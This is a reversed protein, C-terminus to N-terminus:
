KKEAIRLKASRARTNEQIESAEPYIIKGLRRLPALNNGYFDKQEVGEFNGHLMFRKVLRDELSHYSICVLRGGPKLVSVAQELFSKLAELEGNVEIRIAQFCQALIKNEFRAPIKRAIINKLQFTTKIRNTQREEVILAAMKKASKLEGYDWLVRALDEESYANVVDEAKLSQSIDMRMDLPGDHRISFGRSGTDFQHSSVGFDALIGHVAEIQKFKLYAKLHRFNVGIFLFRDDAISNQTASADQDFGILRGAPELQNLIEQSHGGGGFTADVYIGKPQIALGAVAQQLLVPKHYTATM